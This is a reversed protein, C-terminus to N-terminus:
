IRFCLTVPYHDSSHMNEDSICSQVDLDRYWIHDLRLIPNHDYNAYHFRKEKLKKELYDFRPPNWTNFDGAFIVAGHEPIQEMWYDITKKWLENTVFNLAHCNLITLHKGDVDYSTKLMSKKTAFGLERDQSFFKEVDTAKHHSITATGTKVHRLPITFTPNTEIFAGDHTHLNDIWEQLAIFSNEKCMRGVNQRCFPIHAKFLNYTTFSYTM